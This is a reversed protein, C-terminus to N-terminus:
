SLQRANYRSAGQNEGGTFDKRPEYDYDVPVSCYIRYVGRRVRIERHAAPLHCSDPPFPRADERSQRGTGRGPM